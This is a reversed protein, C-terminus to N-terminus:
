AIGIFVFKLLLVSITGLNTKTQEREDRRYPGIKGEEKATNVNQVTSIGVERQLVGKNDGSVVLPVRGHSLVPTATKCAKIIARIRGFERYWNSVLAEPGRHRGVLGYSKQRQIGWPTEEELM